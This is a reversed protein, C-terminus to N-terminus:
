SHTGESRRQNTLPHRSVRFVGGHHHNGALCGQTHTGKVVCCLGAMHLPGDFFIVGLVSAQSEVVCCLGQMLLPFAFFRNGRTVDPVKLIVLCAPESLGSGGAHLRM